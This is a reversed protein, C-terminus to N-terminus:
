IQRKYCWWVVSKVRAKPVRGVVVKKDFETVKEEGSISEQQPIEVM